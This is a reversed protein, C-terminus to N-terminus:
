APSISLVSLVTGCSNQQYVGTVAVYGPVYNSGVNWLIARISGQDQNTYLNVCSYASGAAYPPLWGYVTVTNGNGWCNQGTCPLPNNGGYVWSQIYPPVAWLPIGTCITRQFPYPPFQLGLPWDPYIYGYVQYAGSPYQQRRPLNWVVYNVGQDDYLFTCSGDTTLYGAITVPPGENCYYPNFPYGCAPNSGFNNQWAVTSTVTVTPVAQSVVPQFMPLSVSAILIISVLLSLARSM